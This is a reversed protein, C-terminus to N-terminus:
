EVRFGPSAVIGAPAGTADQLPVRIRYRGPEGIMWAASASGAAPVPRERLPLVAACGDVDAEVWRGDEWRDLATLVRGDCDPVYVAADGRNYIGVSAQALPVRSQRTFVASDPLVEVAGPEPASAGAEYALALSLFVLLLRKVYM